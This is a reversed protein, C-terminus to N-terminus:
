LMSRIFSHIFGCTMNMIYIEMFRYKDFTALGDIVPLELEHINSNSLRRVRAHKHIFIIYYYHQTEMMLENKRQQQAAAATTAARHTTAKVIFRKFAKFSRRRRRRAPSSLSVIL